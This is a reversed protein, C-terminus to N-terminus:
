HCKIILLIACEIEKPTVSSFFVTCWHSICLIQKFKKIKYQVKRKYLWYLQPFIIYFQPFNRVSSPSQQLLCTQFQPSPWLYLLSSRLYPPKAICKWSSLVYVAFMPPSPQLPCQQQTWALNTPWSELILKRSIVNLQEWEYNQCQKGNTIEM